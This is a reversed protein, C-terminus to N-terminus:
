QTNYASYLVESNLITHVICYQSYWARAFPYNFFDTEIMLHYWKITGHFHYWGNGLNNNGNRFEIM